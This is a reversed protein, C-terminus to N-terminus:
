LYSCTVVFIGIFFFLGLNNTVRFINMGEISITSYLFECIFENIQVVFENGGTTKSWNLAQLLCWVSRDLMVAHIQSITM